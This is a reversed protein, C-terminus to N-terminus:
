VGAAQFIAELPVELEPETTRLKGDRAEKIGDSTCIWGKRTRPDILWVYRVGFALYDDIREQMETMTDERSLIEICVLPPETLAPGEPMPGAVVCLDPVRFREPKVQIRQQTFVWVGWEKERNGLYVTLSAQVRSHDREGVHRELLVGELYDCDPRYAKRLYEEVGIVTASSM